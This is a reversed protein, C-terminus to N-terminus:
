RAITLRQTRSESGVRLQVLYTGSPLGSVDVQVEQRGARRGRVLTRVQRGLTDYLRLVVEQAAPVAYRVTVQGGTPNPFIPKLALDSASRRVVVPETAEATGDLDVQRLRYRLTNATYPLDADEFQYSQPQATSGGPAKSDVFGIQKWKETSEGTRRQVEFGANDVESTTRWTLRAGGGTATAEFAALEVPLPDSNSALVLESFSGTEAVIEGESEDFSTPLASFMGYGPQPRSYVTVSSPQDIGDFESADLRVETQDSFSLGPSDVFVLRYQSVNSESIGQVNQPADSFRGASVRGSGSVDDFVVRVDIDDFSAPGDGAVNEFGDGVLDDPCGSAEGSDIYDWGFVVEIHGHFRDTDCNQVGVADFEVNEQLDEGAWGILLADFNDPSLGASPSGGTENLFGEFSTVNSVDWRGIDQDFSTAGDFMASMDTVSSVNWEGIDRNFNTSDAFGGDFMASMDTVNGTEWEGIAQNFSTAAQFMSGMDTVNSVDWEGIDQNFNAAERFMASMDTVNSVDWEGIDQNFSEAGNFMSEMTTVSGTEWGSIDGDFSDTFAFTLSMDTVNSVDWADLDQNFSGASRFTASLNTVGSVEWTGISSQDATLSSAGRFMQAMSDVGSLDPTDDAFLDLNTADEFAGEMTSWEINGWQEVREIKDPDGEDFSEYKGFHIRTFDGGIEVRYRGPSPFTVTTEDTGTTSGSNSPNGVEEWEITYDTGTGPIIIQDDNSEGDNGTEWVTIFPADQGHAPAPILVVGTLIIGILVTICLRASSPRTYVCLPM